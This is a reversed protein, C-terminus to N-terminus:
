IYPIFKKEDMPIKPPLGLLGLGLGLIGCRILLETIAFDENSFSARERYLHLHFPLDGDHDVALVASPLLDLMFEITSISSSRISRRALGKSDVDGSNLLGRSCLWQLIPVINMQTDILTDLSTIGDINTQYLGGRGPSCQDLHWNIFFKIIGMNLAECVRHLPTFMLTDIYLISM